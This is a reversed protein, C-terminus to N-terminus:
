DAASQNARQRMPRVASVSHQDDLSDAWQRIEELNWEDSPKWEKVLGAHWGDAPVKARSANTRDKGAPQNGGRAYFDLQGPVNDWRGLVGFGRVKRM